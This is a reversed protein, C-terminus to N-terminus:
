RSNKSLCIKRLQSSVLKWLRGKRELDSSKMQGM